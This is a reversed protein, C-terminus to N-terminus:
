IMINATTVTAYDSMADQVDWSRCIEPLADRFAKEDAQTKFPPKKNKFSEILDKCSQDDDDRARDIIFYIIPKNNIRMDWHDFDPKLPMHSALDDFGMLSLTNAVSYPIRKKGLEWAEYTEADVGLLDAADEISTGNNARENMLSKITFNYAQPMLEADEYDEREDEAYDIPTHGNEHTYITEM